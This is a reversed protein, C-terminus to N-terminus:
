QNYDNRLIIRTQVWSPVLDGIASTEVYTPDGNGTGKYDIKPKQNIEFLQYTGAPWYGNNDWESDTAPQTQQTSFRMQIKLRDPNAGVNGSASTYTTYAPVNANGSFSGTISKNFDLAGAWQISTMPKARPWQLFMPGSTISGSVASGSIGYYIGRFELSQSTANTTFAASSASYYVAVETGGINSVFDSSGSINPSTPQLTFNLVRADNFKPDASISNVNYTPYDIRHQAFSLAVGNSNVGSVAGNSYMIIKGQINNFNFNTSPTSSKIAISSNQDVYCNVFQTIRSNDTANLLPISSNILICQRFQLTLSPDQGNFYNNQICSILICKEYSLSANAANQGGLQFNFTLNLLTCGIFNWTPSNSGATYFYNVIYNRITINQILKTHTSIGPTWTGSPPADLIVIGDGIITYAISPLSITERYVGAGIVLIKNNTLLNLGAQVTRKPTDPTLGDWADNGAKSVYYDGTIRFNNPM